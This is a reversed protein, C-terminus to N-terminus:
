VDSVCYTMNLINSDVHFLITFIKFTILSTLTQLIFHQFHLCGKVANMEYINDRCSYNLVINASTITNM